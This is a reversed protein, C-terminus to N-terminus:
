DIKGSITQNLILEVLLSNIESEDVKLEKALFSLKVSKYPRIMIEIANLWVSRLFDDIISEIFDDMEMKDLLKLITNM